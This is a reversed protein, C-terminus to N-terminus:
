ADQAQEQWHHPPLLVLWEQLGQHQRAKHAASPKARDGPPLVGGGNRPIFTRPKAVRNIFQRLVQPHVGVTLAEAMLVARDTLVRPETRWGNAQDRLM